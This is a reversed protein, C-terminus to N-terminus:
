LGLYTGLIGFCFFLCFFATFCKGFLEMKGYSESNWTVSTAHLM